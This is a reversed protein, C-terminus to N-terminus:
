NIILWEDKAHIIKPGGETGPKRWLGGAAPLSPPPPAAGYKAHTRNRRMTM